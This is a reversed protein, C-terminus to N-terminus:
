SISGKKKVENINSVKRMTCEYINGKSDLFKFSKGLSITNIENVDNGGKNENIRKNLSVAYRKVVEEVITRIMPYDIGASVAQIQPQPQQINEMVPATRTPTVINENLFSLDGGGTMTGMLLATEDIPNNQFAERIALPVNSAGAGTMRGGAPIGKSKDIKTSMMSDSTIPEKSEFSENIDGRLGKAIGNLQKDMKMLRLSKNKAAKIREVAAMNAEAM